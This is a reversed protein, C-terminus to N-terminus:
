NALDEKITKYLLNLLTLGAGESVPDNDHNYVTIETHNKSELLKIGFKKEKAPDKGFIFLFEDWLSGDEIKEFDPEYQVFYINELKDRDTIEISHRSIAKGTMRWSRKINDEIRIYQIGEAGKKILEVRISEKAEKKEFVNDQTPLTNVSLQNKAQAGSLDEPIILEPIESTLQYDKEKDPFFEKVQGCGSLAIILTINLRNSKM